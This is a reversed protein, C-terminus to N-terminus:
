ADGELLIVPVRNLVVWTVACACKYRNPYETATPETSIYAHEDPTPRYSCFLNTSLSVPLIFVLVAFVNRRDLDVTFVAEDHKSLQIPPPIVDSNRTTYMIPKSISPPLTFRVGDVCIVCTVLTHSM